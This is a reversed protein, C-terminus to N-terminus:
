KAVPDYYSVVLYGLGQLGAASKESASLVAMVNPLQRNYVLVSASATTPAGLSAHLFAKEEKFAAHAEDMFAFLEFRLSILRDKKFRLTVGCSESYDFTLEDTVKTPRTKWGDRDLVNMAESRPMGVSLHFSEPRMWAVRNTSPFATAFLLAITALM